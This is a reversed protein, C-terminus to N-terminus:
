HFMDISRECKVTKTGDSNEVTEIDPMNSVATMEKPVTMTIAWVCKIGPEDWCPFAVRADIVYQFAPYFPSTPILV